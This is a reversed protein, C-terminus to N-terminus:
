QTKTSNSLCPNRINKIGFTFLTTCAVYLNISEYRVHLIEYNKKFFIFQTETVEDYILINKKSPKKFVWKAKILKLITFM